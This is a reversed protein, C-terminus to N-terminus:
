LKAEKLGSEVFKKLENLARGYDRKAENPLERLAATLELLVGSKRGAYAVRVKEVADPDNGAAELDAAFSTRVEELREIGM